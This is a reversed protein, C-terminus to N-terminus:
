AAEKKEIQSQIYKNHAIILEIAGRNSLAHMQEYSPLTSNIVLTEDPRMGIIFCHNAGADVIQQAVQIVPNVEENSTAESRRTSNTKVAKEEINKKKTLKNM